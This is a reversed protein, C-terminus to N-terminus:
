EGEQNQGARPPGAAYIDRRTQQVSDTYCVSREIDISARLLKPCSLIGGPRALVRWLPIDNGVTFPVFKIFSLKGSCDTM